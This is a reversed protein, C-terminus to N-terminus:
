YGDLEPVPNIRDGDAGLDTDLTIARAEFRRDRCLEDILEAGGGIITSDEFLETSFMWSRDAGWALDPAQRESFGTGEKWLPSALDELSGSFLYYSRYGEPGIELKPGELVRASFAPRKLEERLLAERQATAPDAAAEDAALVEVADGGRIFAYGDWLGLYVEPGAHRSIIEAVAALDTAPLGDGAPAEGDWADETWAMGTDDIGSVASFQAGAHLVTGRELAIDAWRVPNGDEDSAPHFIRAYADFGAPIQAAATTAPPRTELVRELTQAIWQGPGAGAFTMAM